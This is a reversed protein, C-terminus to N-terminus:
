LKEKIYTKLEDNRRQIAALCEQWEYSHLKWYSWSKGFGWIEGLKTDVGLKVKNGGRNEYYPQTMLKESVEIAEEIEPVYFESVIADHVNNLVRSKMKRKKFEDRIKCMALITTQGSTGQIPANISANVQNSRISKM